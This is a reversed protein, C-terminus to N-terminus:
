AAAATALGAAALLSRRSFDSSSTHESNVEATKLAPPAAQVLTRHVIRSLATPAWHAGLSRVTPATGTWSRVLPAGHAHGGYRRSGIVPARTLAGGLREPTGGPREARGRHRPHEGVHRPEGFERRLAPRPDALDELGADLPEDVPEPQVVVVREGAV